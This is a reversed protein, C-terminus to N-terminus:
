DDLELTRKRSLPHNRRAIIAYPADFLAEEDVDSAWEPRRLVGFLFDIRGMRLDGLLLDYPGHAIRIQAAPECRMFEDIASALVLMACQPMAGISITTQAEGRAAAIEEQAYDMEKIAVRLQRALEVGGQTLNTGQASRRTIRRGVILEIERASRSLTRPTVNTGRRASSVTGGDAIAILCAVHNSTLREVIPGLRATDAFPAGVLPQTLALEILAFLRQTRLLVIRGFDTLYSGSHRREILHVGLTRELKALAQTVAPQSRNVELAARSVSELRAVAEFMRLHRLSPLEANKVPDNGARH